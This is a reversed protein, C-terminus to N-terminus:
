NKRLGRQRNITPKNMIYIGCEKFDTQKDHTFSPIM